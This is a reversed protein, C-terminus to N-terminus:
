HKWFARLYPWTNLVIGFAHEVSMCASSMDKNWKIQEASKDGSFSSILVPSLEYAPDGFIQDYRDTTLTNEDTGPHTADERAKELIQSEELLLNDNQRGEMPGFLHGVM